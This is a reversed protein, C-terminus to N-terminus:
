GQNDGDEEELPVIIALAKGPIGVFDTTLWVEKGWRPIRLWTGRSTPGKHHLIEVDDEVIAQEALRIILANFAIRGEPTAFAEPMLPKLVQTLGDRTERNGMRAEKTWERVRQGWAFDEPKPMDVKWFGHPKPRHAERDRDVRGAV